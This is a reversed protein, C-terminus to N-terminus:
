VGSALVSDIKQIEHRYDSDRLSRFILSDELVNRGIQSSDAYQQVPNAAYGSQEKYTMWESIASQKSRVMGRRSNIVSISTLLILLAAAAQYVPIKVGFLHHMFGRKQIDGHNTMHRLANVRIQPSPNIEPHLEPNLNQEFVSFSHLVHRCSQCNAVHRNIRQKESDSWDKESTRLILDEIRMCEDKQSQTSM